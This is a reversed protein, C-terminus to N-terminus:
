RKDSPAREFRWEAFGGSPGVQKMVEDGDEKRLEFVLQADLAKLKEEVGVAGPTKIAEARTMDGVREIVLHLKGDKFEAKGDMAPNGTMHFSGGPEIVLYDGPFSGTKPDVRLWKGEAQAQGGRCGWLSVAAVVVVLALGKAASRM